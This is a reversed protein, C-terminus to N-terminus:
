PLVVSFSHNLQQRHKSPFFCYHDSTLKYARSPSTLTFGKCVLCRNYALLLMESFPFRPSPVCAWAMCTPSAGPDQKHPLFSVIFLAETAMLVEHCTSILDIGSEWVRHRSKRYCFFIAHTSNRGTMFSNFWLSRIPFLHCCKTLSLSPFLKCKGHSNWHSYSM